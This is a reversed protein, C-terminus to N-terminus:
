FLQHYRVAYRGALQLYYNHDMGDDIGFFRPNPAPPVESATLTAIVQTSEPFEDFMSGFVFFPKMDLQHKLQAEYFTGNYRNGFTTGQDRNRSSSGALISPAYGLGLQDALAKDPVFNDRYKQEYSAVDSYVGVSWPQIVDGQTYVNFYDPHNTRDYAWDWQVGLVVYPNPNASRIAHFISACDAASLKDKNIGFGWLEIVPRGQHHLYSPSSVLPAIHNSYDDLLAAVAGDFDASSVGSLDYEVAFARGYKEAAARIQQLLQLFSQDDYQGYFRQVLIGDISNEQMWRFHTDVVGTCNSEFLSAHAGSPLIFNTPFLCEQPYQEVAPFMDFQVRFITLPSFENVPSQIFSKGDGPTSPGPITGGSGSLTWHINGQGPRRFFGQYGYLFKGQLSTADVVNSLRKQAIAEGSVWVM